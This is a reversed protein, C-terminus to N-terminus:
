ERSHELQLIVLLQEKEALRFNSEELDEKLRLLVANQQNLNDKLAEIEDLLSTERLVQEQSYQNHNVHSEFKNPEVSSINILQAEVQVIIDDNDELQSEEVKDSFQIINM